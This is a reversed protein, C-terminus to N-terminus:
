RVAVSNASYSVRPVSKAQGLALGTGSHIAVGHVDIEGVAPLAGFASDHEEYGTGGAVVTARRLSNRSASSMASALIARMGGADSSDAQTVCSPRSRLHLFNTFLENIM